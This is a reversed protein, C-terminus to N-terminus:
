AVLLFCYNADVWELAGLWDPLHSDPVDGHRRACKRSSPVATGATESPPSSIPWHSVQEVFSRETVLSSWLLGCWLLQSPSQM